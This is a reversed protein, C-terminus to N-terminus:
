REITRGAVLFLIGTSVIALAFLGFGEGGLGTFPLVETDLVEDEITTSTTSTTITTGMVEDEITTTSTEEVQSGITTTTSSTTTTSTSTTSTTSTSTSSTTSSSSTTTTETANRWSVHSIGNQGVDIVQSESVTYTQAGSSGAKVCIEVTWGENMTVDLTTDEDGDWEASGWPGSIETGDESEVKNGEPFGLDDCTTSQARAPVGAFVLLLFMTSAAILALRAKGGELRIDM